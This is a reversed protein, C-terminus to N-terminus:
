LNPIDQFGCYIYRQQSESKILLESTIQMWDKFIDVKKEGLKTWSAM